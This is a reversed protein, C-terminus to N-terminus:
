KYSAESAKGFNELIIKARFNCQFPVPSFCYKDHM